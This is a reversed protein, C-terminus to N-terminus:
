HAVPRCANCTADCAFGTGCSAGCTPRCIGQDCVGQLGSGYNCPGCMGSNCSNRCFNDVDCVDGNMGGGSLSANTALCDSANKCPYRCLDEGTCLQGNPPCTRAESCILGDPWGHHFVTFDCGAVLAAVLVLARMM